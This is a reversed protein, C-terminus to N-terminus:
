QKAGKWDVMTYLIFLGVAILGALAANFAIQTRKFTNIADKM